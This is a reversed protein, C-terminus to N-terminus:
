RILACLGGVSRMSSPPPLLSAAARSSAHGLFDSKSNTLPPATHACVQSGRNKGPLGNGRM